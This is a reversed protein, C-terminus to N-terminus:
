GQLRGNALMTGSPEAHAIKEVRAQLDDLEAERAKRAKTIARYTHDIADFANLFAWMQKEAQESRRCADELACRSVVTGFVDFVVYRFGRRTNNMDLADSTVIAFLLGNDVMRASSIRSKHFRLTDDDVYHTRGLLNRQANSKPDSAQNRYLDMM